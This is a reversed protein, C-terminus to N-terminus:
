PIADKRVAHPPRHRRARSGDTRQDGPRRRGDAATSGAVTKGAPGGAPLMEWRIPHVVPQGGRRNVGPTVGTGPPTADASPPLPAHWSTRRLIAPPLAAPLPDAAPPPDRHTLRRRPHGDQPGPGHAQVRRQGGRVAPPGEGDVLGAVSGAGVDAPPAVHLHEGGPLHVDGRAHALTQGVGANRHGAAIGTGPGGLEHLAHHLGHRREGVHGRVEPGARAHHGYAPRPEQLVLLDGGLGPRGPGEADEPLLVPLAARLLGVHHQVAGAAVPVGVGRAVAPDRGGSLLDHLVPDDPMDRVHPTLRLAPPVGAQQQHPRAVRGPRHGGVQGLQRGAPVAVTTGTARSSVSLGSEGDVPHEPRLIGVPVPHGVIRQRGPVPDGGPRLRQRVVRRGPEPEVGAPHHVSKPPLPVPHGGAQRGPVPAPALGHGHVPHDGKGAVHPVVGEVPLELDVLAIGRGPGHLQGCLEQRGIRRVAQVLLAVAGLRQGAGLGAEVQQAM